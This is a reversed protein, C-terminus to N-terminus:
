RDNVSCANPISLPPRGCDTIPLRRASNRALSGGSKPSTKFMMNAFGVAIGPMSTAIPPSSVGSPWEAATVFAASVSVFTPCPCTVSKLYCAPAPFVVIESSRAVRSASSPDCTRYMAVSSDARARSALALVSVCDSRSPNRFTTAAVSTSGLSTRHIGMPPVVENACIAVASSRSNEIHALASRFRSLVGAVTLSTSVAEISMGTGYTTM